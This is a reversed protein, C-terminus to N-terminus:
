TTHYPIARSVTRATESSQVRSRHRTVQVKGLEEYAERRQEEPVGAFRFPTPRGRGTTWTAGLAGSVVVSGFMGHFDTEFLAPM